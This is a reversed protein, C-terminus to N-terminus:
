PGDEALDVVVRTVPAGPFAWDVAIRDPERCEVVGIAAREDDSEGMVLYLRDGPGFMGARAAEGASGSREGVLEGLWRAAREPTTIASWVDGIPAPYVRDFRIAYLEGDRVVTGRSDTM